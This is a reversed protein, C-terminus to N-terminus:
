FLERRRSRITGRGDIKKLVRQRQQEDLQAEELTKRLLMDMVLLQTDDDRLCQLIERHYYNEIPMQQAFNANMQERVQNFCIGADEKQSLMPLIKELTHAVIYGDCHALGTKGDQTGDNKDLVQRMKDGCENYGYLAYKRIEDVLKEDSQLNKIGDNITRLLVVEGMFQEIVELCDMIERKFDPLEIAELKIIDGRTIGKEQLCQEGRHISEIQESANPWLTKSKGGLAVELSRKVINPRDEKIDQIILGFSSLIADYSCAIITKLPGRGTPYNKDGGQKLQRKDDYFHPYYNQNLCRQYEGLIDPIYADIEMGKLRFTMQALVLEVPTQIVFKDVCKVAEDKNKQQVSSELCQNFRQKEGELVVELQPTILNSGYGEIVLPVLEEMLHHASESAALAEIHEVSSTFNNTGEKVREVIQNIVQEIREPGLIESYGQAAIAKELEKTIKKRTIKEVRGKSVFKLGLNKVRSRNGLLLPLTYPDYVNSDMRVRPKTEVFEYKKRDLTFGYISKELDNKAGVYLAINGIIEGSPGEGLSESSVSLLILKEGEPPLIKVIQWYKQDQGRVLEIKIGEEALRKAAQPRRHGVRDLKGKRSLHVELEFPVGDLNVDLLLLGNPNVKFTPALSEALYKEWVVDIPAYLNELNEELAPFNQICGNGGEALPPLVPWAFFLIVLAQLNM